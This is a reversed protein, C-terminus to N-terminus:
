PTQNGAHGVVRTAPQEPNGCPERESVLVVDGDEKDPHGDLVLCGLTRGAEDEVAWWNLTQTTAKVGGYQEYSSATGPDISVPDYRSDGEGCHNACPRLEVPRDTDNRVVYVSWNCEDTFDFCTAQRFSHPCGTLFVALSVAVAAIGPVM